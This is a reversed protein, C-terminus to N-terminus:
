YDLNIYAKFIKQKWDYDQYENPHTSHVLIYEEEGEQDVFVFEYEKNPQRYIWREFAYTEYSPPSQLIDDPIGYKLYIRGRDTKWGAWRQTSFQHDVYDMRSRLQEYYENEPTDTITDQQTFYRVLWQEQEPRPLKKLERSSKSSILYGMINVMQQFEDLSMSNLENAIDRQVSVRSKKFVYFPRSQEIEEGTDNDTVQLKITYSNPPLSVINIGIYEVSSAGPKQRTFPGRLLLQDDDPGLITYRLTYTGNATETLGYIESYIYLVPIELGYICCANPTVQLGNKYFPDSTNQYRPIISTALLLDSLALQEASIPRVKFTKSQTYTKDSILDHLEAKVTYTGPDLYFRSLAAMKIQLDAVSPREVLQEMLRFMDQQVPTTGQLIEVKALAQFQFGNQTETWRFLRKPILQNIEVKTKGNGGWFQVIDLDFPNGALPAITQGTLLHFVFVAGAALLAYFRYNIKM